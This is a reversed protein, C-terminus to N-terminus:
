GDYKEGNKLSLLCHKLVPFLFHDKCEITDKSITDYLNQCVLQDAYISPCRRLAQIFRIKNVVFKFDKMGIASTTYDRTRYMEFELNVNIEQEIRRNFEIAKEYVVGKPQPNKEFYNLMTQKLPEWDRVSPDDLLKVIRRHM